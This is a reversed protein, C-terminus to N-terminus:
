NKLIKQGTWMWQVFDLSYNAINFYQLYYKM